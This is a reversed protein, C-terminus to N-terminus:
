SVEARETRLLTVARQIDAPVSCEFSAADLGPLAPWELRAAHLPTRVLVRDPGAGECLSNADRFEPQGYQPDVLLPHGVSLLHVRIQHTRGTMPEALVLTANRLAEVPTLRTHAAKGVEEPRVVRSRGRRAPVLAAHVDQVGELKGQVLALYQKRVQGAEFAMSLARHTGADLAFVVLGTTERDLRHVVFVPMGLHAALQEKLSLAGESMRGPIVLVGSPKALVVLRDSRAVLELRNM